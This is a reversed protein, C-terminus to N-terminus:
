IARAVIRTISAGEPAQIGFFHDHLSPDQGTTGYLLDSTGDSFEVYVRKNNPNVVVAPAAPGQYYQFNNANLLVFGVAIVNDRPDILMDIVGSRLSNIGSIAESGALYGGTGINWWYNDNISQLTERGVARELLPF